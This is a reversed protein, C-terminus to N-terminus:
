QLSLSKLTSVVHLILAEKCALMLHKLHLSPSGNTSLNIKRSIFTIMIERMHLMHM